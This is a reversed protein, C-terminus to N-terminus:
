IQYGNKVPINTPTPTPTPTQTQRYLRIDDSFTISTQGAGDKVQYYVVKQPGYGRQLTWSKSTAPPEWQEVDWTEDNSYRVKDVDSGLDFYTLILSVSTSTTYTANDNIIIGGTPTQTDLIITDSDTMSIRGTGDKVQYYVKKPGDGGQLTWSKSPAPDEWKESDWIGDNSYRVKDVDSGLDIYTLTLSVSTSTTYTANDNITISRTPTQTDLIVTDLYTMSISGAGDKVQYYVTKNGDGGQLTWSKSTVPPEWQETDWIGDNSYRIKDVDSSLDIYTLTLSVSTSTTYEDDDNIIISGTPTQTDLIITDSYTMSIRGACDKVQFYVKKPGDGGQLTWSRSTAPPEWQETDWIGDSSFRVMDVGSGSDYYDLSLTVQASSSFVAGSEISISGEPDTVDINTIIIVAVVALTIITVANVPIKVWKLGKQVLSRPPLLKAFNKALDASIIEILVEDETHGKLINKTIKNASGKFQKLREQDSLKSLKDELQKLDKNDLVEGQKKLARKISQSLIEKIYKETIEKSTKKVPPKIGHGTQEAEKVITNM